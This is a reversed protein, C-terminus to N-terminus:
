CGNAKKGKTKRGRLSNQKHSSGGPAGSVGDKWHTTKKGGTVKRIPAAPANGRSARLGVLPRDRKPGGRLHHGGVVTMTKATGESESTL